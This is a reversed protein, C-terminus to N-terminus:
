RERQASAALPHPGATRELTINSPRSAAIIPMSLVAFLRSMPDGKPLRSGPQVKPERQSQSGVDILLMAVIMIIVILLLYVFGRRFSGTGFIEGLLDGLIVIMVFLVLGGGLAIKL